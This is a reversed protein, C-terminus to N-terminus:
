GSREELWGAAVLEAVVEAVDGPALELDTALRELTTPEDCALWVAGAAGPLEVSEAPQALDPISRVLVRDVAFRWVVSARRVTM